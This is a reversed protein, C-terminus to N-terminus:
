AGLEEAVAVAVLEPVDVPEDVEVKVAVAVLVADDAISGKAGVLEDVALLEALLEAVDELVAVDVEVEVDVDVDVLVEVDVDVDVLVDVDVEVLVDVDVDVEVRVAVAVLAADDAIAGEGVDDLPDVISVDSNNLVALRRRRWATTTPGKLTRACSLRRSITAMLSPMARGDTVMAEMVGTTM